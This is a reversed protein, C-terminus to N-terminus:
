KLLTVLSIILSAFGMALGAYVLPKLRAERRQSEELQSEVATALQELNQSLDRILAGQEFDSDELDKLRQDVGHRDRLALEGKRLATHELAAAALKALPEIFPLIPIM